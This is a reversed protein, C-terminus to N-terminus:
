HGSAMRIASAVKRITPSQLMSYHDGAVRMSQVDGTLMEPWLALTDPSQRACAVLADASVEVAPRYRSLLEMHARFVRHRRVIEDRVSGAETAGQDLQEVLWDLQAQAPLEPDPREVERELLLDVADAVFRAAKAEESAAQWDPLQFPADLLALFGVEEGASELQHAMEFAVIGGMSWGGLLYPGTPQAARVVGLYDAVMEPLSTAPTSDARLGNAEIGQITFTEGLENALQAYNYVAGGAGHVLFLTPGTSGGTLRVLRDPVKRTIGSQEAPAVPTASVAGTEAAGLESDPLGYRDRLVEALQAPSPALFIATVDADVALEDRLRTIL